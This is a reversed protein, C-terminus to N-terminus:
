EGVVLARQVLARRLARTAVRALILSQSNRTRPFSPLCVDKQIGRFVSSQSLSAQYLSKKNRYILTTLLLVLCLFFSSVRKAVDWIIITLDISATTLIDTALPHFDVITVRNTHGQLEFAPESLNVVLGDEPILWFKVSSDSCGVAIRHDDYPDFAFDGITSSGFLLSPIQGGELRRGDLKVIALQNPTRGIPIAGFKRNVKFFNCEGPIIRCLAPINKVHHEKNLITGKLHRFKTIRTAFRRSSRRVSDERNLSSIVPLANRIQGGNSSKDNM